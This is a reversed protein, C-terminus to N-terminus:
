FIDISKQSGASVSVRKRSRRQWKVHNLQTRIGANFTGLVSAATVVIGVAQNISKGMDREATGANEVIAINEKCMQSTFRFKICLFISHRETMGLFLSIGAPLRYQEIILHFRFEGGGCSGANM